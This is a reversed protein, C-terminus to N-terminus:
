LETTTSPNRRLAAEAVYRTGRTWASGRGSGHHRIPAPLRLTRDDDPPSLLIVQNFEGVERVRAAALVRDILDAIETDFPGSRARLAAATEPTWQIHDRRHLIAPFEPQIESFRYFGMRETTNRFSRGTQCMYANFRNYEDYAARNAAVVVVNREPERESEVDADGAAQAIAVEPVGQRRAEEKAGDLRGAARDRDDRAQRILTLLFDHTLETM